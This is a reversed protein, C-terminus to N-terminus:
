KETKKLPLWEHTLSEKNTNKLEPTRLVGKPTNLTRHPSVKVPVQALETIALLKTSHTERDVEILLDGSRLRKITKPEGVLGQIGKQIAFTSLRSLSKEDDGSTMMLFRPFFIKAKLIEERTKKIGKLTHKTVIMIRRMAIKGSQRKTIVTIWPTNHQKKM